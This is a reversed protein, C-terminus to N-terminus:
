QGEGERLPHAAAETEIITADLMTGRRLILGAADLQRDLEM